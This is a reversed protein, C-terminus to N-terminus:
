AMQDLPEVSEPFPLLREHQNRYELGQSRSVALGPRAHQDSCVALALPKDAAATELSIERRAGAIHELAAHGCDDDVIQTILRVLQEPETDATVPQDAYQQLRNSRLVAVLRQGRNGIRQHALPSGSHCRDDRGAVGTNLGTRRQHQDFVLHAIEAHRTLMDGLQAVATPEGAPFVPGNERGPGIPTGHQIHREVRHRSHEHETGTEIGNREDIDKCFEAPAHGYGVVPGTIQRALRERPGFFFDQHRRIAEAALDFETSEVCDDYHTVM